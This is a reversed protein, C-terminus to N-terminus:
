LNRFNNKSINYYDSEVIKPHTASERFDFSIEVEGNAESTCFPVIRPAEFKENYWAYRIQVAYGTDRDVDYHLFLSVDNFMPYFSGGLTEDITPYGVKSSIVHGARNVILSMYEEPFRVGLRDSFAEVEATAPMRIPKWFRGPNFYFPIDQPTM